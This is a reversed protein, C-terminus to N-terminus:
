EPQRVLRVRPDIVAYLLDVILNIVLFEATFILAIAQVVAYDLAQVSSVLLAGMGNLGFAYEVLIAGSLLYGIVVGTVTVIPILASRFAHKLIVRAGSFGRIRATEVYEADLAEVMSIRTVRSVLALASLSLAIAPLTLHYLTNFGGSGAGLAPFWNLVVAFLVILVVASVYPPIATAVLAGVSSVVDIAGNRFVASLIGLPIGLLLMLLAAYATLALTTGLRPVVVHVVSDHGRISDGLDGKAIDGIWTAYQVPLPRDLAYKERIAEVAQETTPRGALLLLAPDGPALHLFAFIVVSSAVLVLLMSAVRRALYATM